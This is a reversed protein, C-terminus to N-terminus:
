WQLLCNLDHMGNPQLCLIEGGDFNIESIKLYLILFIMHGDFIDRYCSCFIKNVM